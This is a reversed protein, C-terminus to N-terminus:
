GLVETVLDVARTGRAALSVFVLAPGTRFCPPPRSFLGTARSEVVGRDGQAITAGELLAFTFIAREGRVSIAGEPVFSVLLPLAVTRTATGTAVLGTAVGGARTEVVGLDDGQAITTGAPVFNGTRDAEIRRGVEIGLGTVLAVEPGAVEVTRRFDTRNSAEDDVAIGRGIEEARGTTVGRSNSLAGTGLGENNSLLNTRALGKGWTDVLVSVLRMAM